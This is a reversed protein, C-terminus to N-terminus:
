RPKAEHRLYRAFFRLVRSRYEEPSFQYLDVHGAGQVAWLEKPPLAAAFIRLTEAWSTNRDTTGSAILVPSRLAAIRDIPRLDSESVGLQLPLQFLLLPALQAGARGLRIALRDRVAEDITPFMSEVIVADPPPLPHALVLTAAGLSQGIVGVREGPLERRLYTLAAIVGEGERAGFTIKEGTSEGHGPLDILLVSYGARSLLRARELMDLRSGRVGHLLLVAGGGPQGRSFWGAVVGPSPTPIRVTTAHLDPPAEGITSHVAKSLYAGVGALIASVFLLGGAAAMVVRRARM